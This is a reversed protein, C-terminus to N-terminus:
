ETEGENKTNEDRPATGCFAALRQPANEECTSVKISLLM